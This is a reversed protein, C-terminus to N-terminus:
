MKYSNIKKAANELSRKTVHMYTQKTTHVDAHGLLVQADKEDVGTEHLISAYAHRFQHPTVHEDIDLEKMTNIWFREFQSQTLPSGDDNCFIFGKKKRPIIEALREALIVGREGAKTKLYTKVIPANSIHTVQRNINIFNTVRDIDSYDLGLIEGRRIGTSLLINVFLIGKTVEKPNTRFVKKLVTDSPPIRENQGLGQPIPVFQWINNAEIYGNLIAFKWIQNCVTKQQKVTKKMPYLLAFHQIFRNADMVTVEKIYQGEFWEKVRRVCAKYRHSTSEEVREMHWSEWEDAVEAVTKGKEVQGKYELMQRQIDREAKQDNKERSYFSKSVGDIVFTKVARGDKRRTVGM